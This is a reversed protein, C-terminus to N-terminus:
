RRGRGSFVMLLLGIVISIVIALVIIEWFDAMTGLGVLTKNAAAYASDNIATGKTLMETDRLDQLIVLGFILLASALVLAIISPGLANLQGKKNLLKKM